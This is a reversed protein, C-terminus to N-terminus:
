EMTLTQLALCRAVAYYGVKTQYWKVSLRPDDGRMSSQCCFFSNGFSLPDSALAAATDTINPGSSDLSPPISETQAGV